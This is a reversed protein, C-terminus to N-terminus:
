EWAVARIPSGDCGVLKLPLLSVNMRKSPLEDLRALNEIILGGGGLFVEHFGFDPELTETSGEEPIVVEDPSFTDVGVVRVGCGLLGEAVDKDFFPQDLYRPSRWYKSWGTMFLVISHRRQSSFADEFISQLNSWYIRQRPKTVVDQIDLISAEGVLMSLDIKDIPTADDHFHVPADIHTGVHSGFSLHSVNFGHEKTNCVLKCSFPRDGPYVQTNEDLSHSLDYVRM